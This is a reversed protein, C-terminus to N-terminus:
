CCQVSLNRVQCAICQDRELKSRQTKNIPKIGDLAARRNRISFNSGGLMWSRLTQWCGSFSAAGYLSAPPTTLIHALLLLTFGATSHNPQKHNSSETLQTCCCWAIHKPSQTPVQGACQFTHQGGGLATCDGFQQESMHPHLQKGLASNLLM